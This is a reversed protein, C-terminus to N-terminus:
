YEEVTFSNRHKILSLMVFVYLFQLYDWVNKVDAHSPHSYDVKCGLQNIGLSLEQVWQIHLQVSVAPIYMTAYLSFEKDRSFISGWDLRYGIVISNRRLDLKMHDKYVHGSRGHPKKEQSKV